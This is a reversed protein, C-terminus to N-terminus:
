GVASALRERLEEPIPIPEEAEYDYTVSVTHGDALLRGDGSAEVRYELNISSTGLEALRVRVTVREGFSGPSRYNITLSALILGRPGADAVDLDPALQALYELRATEFWRAFVVNNVHRMADLEGYEVQREHSFPWDGSV